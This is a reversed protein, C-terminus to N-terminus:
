DEDSEEIDDENVKISYRKGSSSIICTESYDGFGGDDFEFDKGNYTPMYGYVVHNRMVTSHDISLKLKDPDFEENIKLSYQGHKVWRYSVIQYTEPKKDSATPKIKKATSSDLAAHYLKEFEMTSLVEVNNEGTFYATRLDDFVPCCFDIDYMLQDEVDQYEEESIGGDVFRALDETSLPLVAIEVYPTYLTITRQRSPVSTKKTSPVVPRDSLYQMFPAVTQKPKNVVKKATKKVSKKKVSKKVSKKVTKKVSKKKSVKKKISKKKTAM